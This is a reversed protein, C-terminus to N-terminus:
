QRIRATALADMVVQPTGPADAANVVASLRAFVEPREAGLREGVPGSLARALVYVRRAWVEDALADRPGAALGEAIRAEISLIQAMSASVFSKGIAEDLALRMQPDTEYERVLRELGGPPPRYAPPLQAWAREEAVLREREAREGELHALLPVLEDFSRVAKRQVFPALHRQDFCHWAAGYAQANDPSLEVAFPALALAEVCHGARAANVVARFESGGPPGLDAPRAEVELEAESGYPAFVVFPPPEPPAPVAPPAAMGAGAVM